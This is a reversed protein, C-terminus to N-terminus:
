KGPPGRKRLSYKHSPAASTSENSSSASSASSASSSSNLLEKGVLGFLERKNMALINKKKLGFELLTDINMPDLGAEYLHVYPDRASKAKRTKAAAAAKKAAASGSNSESSLSLNLMVAISGLNTGSNVMSQIGKKTIGPVKRTKAKKVLRNIQKDAARSKATAAAAREAKLAEWEVMMGPNASIEAYSMLLDYHNNGTRLINITEVAGPVEVSYEFDFRGTRYNWNMVRINRGLMMAAAEVARDGLNSFWANPTKMGQIGAVYSDYTPFEDTDVLGANYDALARGLMYDATAVRIDMHGMPAGHMRLWSELSYYLCNGDDASEFRALGRESLALMLKEYASLGNNNSAASPKNNRKKHTNRPM